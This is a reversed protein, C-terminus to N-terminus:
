YLPKTAPKKVAVIRASPLTVRAELGGEPAHAFAVSGSNLAVVELAISLGLGSGRTTEDHRQGRQGLKTMQEDTLGPGDDAIRLDVANGQRKGEVRVRSRGWKAANELIVGVLEMLDHRDIDVRLNPDLAIDWDLEEGEQTRSLVAVTRQVAENLSANLQHTRTRMRLRSLRLQYEVRDDMEGVIEDVETGTAASGNSKMAVALNRLVSLPTKLGHALDAARARAFEMSKQQQDLLENVEGVLPLVESPHESSLRQAEGRRVAGIGARLKQLPSLGLGVQLWAALILVLGLVALALALDSGFLRISEDLVARNEALAIRFRRDGAPTTFTVERVAASLRQEGPGDLTVFRETGDAATVGATTLVVDWLSRSRWATGSAVDEIQWYVGSLQTEYRPDPLPDDPVPQALTPEIQAVMRNLSATLGQRMTREVNATFMWGIALGAVLLALLIWLAAGGLLRLRLSRPRM